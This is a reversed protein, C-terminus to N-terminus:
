LNMELTGNRARDGGGGVVGLIKTYFMKSMTRVIFLTSKGKCLSILVFRIRLGTELLM